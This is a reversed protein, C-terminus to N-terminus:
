EFIFGIWIMGVKEVVEVFDVNEFFFGYGFIVVDVGVFCVM